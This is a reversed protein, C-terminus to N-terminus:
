NPFRRGIDMQPARERQCSRALLERVRDGKVTRGDPMRLIIPESIIQKELLELRRNLNRM